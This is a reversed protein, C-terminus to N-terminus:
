VTRKHRWVNDCKYIQWCTSLNTSQYNTWCKTTVSQWVPLNALVKVSQWVPPNVLVQDNEGVWGAEWLERLLSMLTKVDELRVTLADSYSFYLQPIVKWSLSTQETAGLLMTWRQSHTWLLFHGLQWKRQSCLLVRHSHKSPKQRPILTYNTTVKNWSM